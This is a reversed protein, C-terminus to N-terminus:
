ECPGRQAGSRCWAAWSARLFRNHAQVQADVERLGRGLEPVGSVTDSAYPKGVVQFASFSAAKKPPSTGGKLVTAGSMLSGCTILFLQSGGGQVELDHGEAVYM